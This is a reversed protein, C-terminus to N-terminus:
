WSLPHSSRIRFTEGDRDLTKWLVRQRSVSAAARATPRPTSHTHISAYFCCLQDHANAGDIAVGLPVGRADTLVSRKVGLKGRDTPNKGSKKGAWRRSPQRATWRSGDGLSAANRITSGCCWKGSDGGFVWAHGSKSIAIFRVPAALNDPLAKWQCGTRLLYLIGSAVACIVCPPGVKSRRPYKPLLPELQQWLNEPMWAFKGQWDCHM